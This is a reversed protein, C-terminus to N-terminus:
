PKRLLLILRITTPLIFVGCIMAFLPWNTDTM